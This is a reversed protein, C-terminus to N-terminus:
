RPAAPGSSAASPTSGSWSRSARSASSLWVTGYSAFPALHELPEGLLGMQDKVKGPILGLPTAVAIEPGLVDQEPHEGFAVTAGSPHQPGM